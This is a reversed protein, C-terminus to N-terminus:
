QARAKEDIRLKEELARTAREGELKDREARWAAELGRQQLVDKWWTMWDSEGDRKPDFTVYGVRVMKLMRAMDPVKHKRQLIVGNLGIAIRVKLAAQTPADGDFVVSALTAAQAALRLRRREEKTKLSRTLKREASM